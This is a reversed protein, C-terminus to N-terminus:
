PMMPIAAACARSSPNPMSKPEGWTSVADNDVKALVVLPESIRRMAASIRARFAVPRGSQLRVMPSKSEACNEMGSGHRAPMPWARAAPRVM